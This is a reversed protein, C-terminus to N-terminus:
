IIGIKFHNPIWAKRFKIGKGDPYGRPLQWIGVLRLLVVHGRNASFFSQLIRACHCVISFKRLGSPHLQALMLSQHGCFRGSEMGVKIVTHHRM